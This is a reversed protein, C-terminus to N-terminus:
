DDVAIADPVPDLWPAILVAPAPAPADLRLPPKGNPPPALARSLRMTVCAAKDARADKVVEVVVAEGERLTKFRAKPTVDEASLLAPRTLGIDILAAPMDPGLGVGRTLWVEGVRSAAGGGTARLEVGQGDEKLAAWLEGGSAAIVIERKMPAAAVGACLGPRRAAGCNRLAAIRRREFLLRRHRSRVARRAGPDCLRRGQRAM